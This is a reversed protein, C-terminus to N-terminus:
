RWGGSRGYDPYAHGDALLEILSGHGPEDPAQAFPALNTWVVLVMAFLTTLMWVSAPVELLPAL